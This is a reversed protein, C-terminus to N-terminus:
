KSYRSALKKYEAVQDEIPINKFELFDLTVSLFDTIMPFKGEEYFMERIELLADRTGTQKKKQIHKRTAVTRGESRAKAIAGKVKEVVKENSIENTPLEKIIEIAASQSIHGQKVEDRVEKPAGALKLMDSVYSKSRGVKKAIDSLNMEFQHTLRYFLDAIEMPSLQKNDQTIFMDFIRDESRYGKKEMLMPVRFEDKEVDILGKQIAIQIARNRRYGDTLHIMGGEGRFGRMPVKVGNEAISLVLEDINGYDTRINFNEDVIISRPDIYFVDKRKEDLLTLQKEM